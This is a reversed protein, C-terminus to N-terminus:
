TLHQALWHNSREMYSKASPSDRAITEFAHAAGPVIDTTTDVGAARLRDAYERGEAYFLEIDGVGIWAAPLGSLNARRAPAAYDPVDPGAFAEGLYSRWGNLNARNNWTFHRIKDLTRDAATRDDLMPCFLWQAVPQPGGADHIRLVLGAALGGGASQGGVVIKTADIEREGSHQIIWNWAAFCDDLPAPYPHEPALRYNASVVLIGHDRAADACRTDDQSLDGLVMGGGHIWLLAGDRTRTHPLYVRLKNGNVVHDEITVHPLKAHPMLRLLGRMVRIGLMHSPTAPMMRTAKRLDPAVDHLTLQESHPTTMTHGKPSDIATRLTTPLVEWSEGM